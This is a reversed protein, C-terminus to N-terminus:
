AVKQFVFTAFTYKCGGYEFDPADCEWQPEDVLQCHSIRSLLRDRLDRKTYLRRDEKPIPDGIRFQDNFDCTLVGIGDPALLEEFMKVFSEDDAVHEIVSTAFVADYHGRKCSPKTLFTALDYNIVPDVEEIEYGSIMLAGAATDEYSGVCLM